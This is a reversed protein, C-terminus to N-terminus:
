QAHRYLYNNNLVSVCKDEYTLVIMESLKVNEKIPDHMQKVSYVNDGFYKHIRGRVYNNSKPSKYGIIEGYAPERKMFEGLIFYCM